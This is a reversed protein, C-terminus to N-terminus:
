AHAPLWSTYWPNATTVVNGLAFVASDDYPRGVIQLGAPIGTSTLGSPVSLVPCRSAMNFPICLPAELNHSLRVGDVVLPTELYDEGALFAPIGSTPCILADAREFVSALDAQIRAEVLLADFYDGGARDLFDKTYRLVPRDGAAAEIMPAFIAGYHAWAAAMIEARTWPLEIEDVKIGAERLTEAAALTATAVDPDVPYDGLNMCLAVKLSKASKIALPPPAPLSVPDLPHTGAIVNQLLACDPVTRALPGDHCYPDLNNPPMAPVRGYPPKFGVVGNFSAPIRISGGIDSGTALTTSGAALAAGSGGSSGGASYEINWPTRTIGWLDSHTFGACCFEPTTTRAHVIGGAAMIREVIPHTETAINDRLLTSGERLPLGAIPQEEKIAVPLGELPRAEGRAYREGALRAQNLADEFYLDTFANIVPETSQARQVVAQMLEVPALEGSRFMHIADTAALYALEAVM